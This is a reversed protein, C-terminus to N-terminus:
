SIKLIALVRFVAETHRTVSINKLFNNVQVNADETTFDYPDAQYHAAHNYVAHNGNYRPRHQM